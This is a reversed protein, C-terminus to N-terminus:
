RLDHGVRKENEGLLTALKAMALRVRTKVTGVPAGTREAIELHTLGQFYALEIVFRQESPLSALAIGVREVDEKQQAAENPWLTAQPGADAGSSFAAREAAHRSRLRDIARNRAMTLTWSLVSGRNEDYERARKWIELFTEQVVDEAERRDGLIRLSLGLIRSAHRDYLARLARIDASAALSLLATDTEHM